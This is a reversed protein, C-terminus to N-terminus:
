KGAGKSRIEPRLLWQEVTEEVEDLEEKSIAASGSFLAMLVTATPRVRLEPQFTGDAIGAEIMKELGMRWYPNLAQLAEAVAPDRRARLGLELMVNALGPCDERYYRVDSFEQRLRDWSAHGTSPPPPGHLTAFKQGLFMALARILDNKSPFYYHLTAINVGAREAVARTKFGEFGREAIVDFAAQLLAMRRDIQESTAPIVPHSITM